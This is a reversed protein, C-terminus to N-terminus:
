LKYEKSISIKTKKAILKGSKYSLKFEVDYPVCRPELLLEILGSVEFDEEKTVEIKQKYTTNVRVFRVPKNIIPDIEPLSEPKESLTKNVKLYSTKPIALSFTAYIGDTSFPSVIYDGKNLKIAVALEYESGGLKEMDLQIDFPKLMTESLNSKSKNPIDAYKYASFSVISIVLVLFMLSKKM